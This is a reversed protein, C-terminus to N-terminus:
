ALLMQPWCTCFSADGLLVPGPGPGGEIGLARSADKRSGRRCQKPMLCPLTGLCFIDHCLEYAPLYTPVYIFTRYASIDTHMHDHMSICAYFFLLARALKHYINQTAEDQKGLGSGAEWTSSRSRSAM